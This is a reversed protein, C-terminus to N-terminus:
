SCYLQKNRTKKILEWAYTLPDNNPDSSKSADLETVEGTGFTVEIDVGLVAIPAINIKPTETNKAASGCGYCIIGILINLITYFVIRM